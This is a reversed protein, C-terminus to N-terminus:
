SCSYSTFCMSVFRDFYDPCLACDFTVTCPVFWESLSCIMFQTKFVAVSSSDVTTPLWSQLGADRWTRSHFFVFCFGFVLSWVVWGQIFAFLLVQGHIANSAYIDMINMCLILLLSFFLQLTGLPLRYPMPHVCFVWGCPASTHSKLKGVCSKEFLLNFFNNFYFMYILAHGLDKSQHAFLHFGFHVNFYPDIILYIFSVVVLSSPCSKVLWIQSHLNKTPSM